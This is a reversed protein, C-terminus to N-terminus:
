QSNVMVIAKQAWKKENLALIVKKRIRYVSSKSCKSIHALVQMPISDLVDEKALAYMVLALGKHTPKMGSFVPFDNAEHIHHLLKRRLEPSIPLRLVIKMAHVIPAKMMYEKLKTNKRTLQSILKLLTSPNLECTAIANAKKLVENVDIEYNFERAAVIISAAIIHVIDRPRGTYRMALEYARYTLRSRVSEGLLISILERIEKSRRKRSKKIIM